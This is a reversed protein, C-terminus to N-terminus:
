TLGTLKAYGPLNSPSLRHVEKYLGDMKNKAKQTKPHNDGYIKQIKTHRKAANYADDRLGEYYGYKTGKYTGYIGGVMAGGAAYAPNGASAIAGGIGGVGVGAIGHAIGSGIARPIRWVSENVKKGYTPTFLRSSHMHLAGRSYAHTKVRLKGEYKDVFAGGTNKSVEGAFEHAASEDNIFTKVHQNNIDYVKHFTDPTALGAMGGVAAGITTMIGPSGTVADAGAGMMGGSIAGFRANRWSEDVTDFRDTASKLTGKSMSQNIAALLSDSPKKM